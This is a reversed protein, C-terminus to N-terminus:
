RALMHEKRYEAYAAKRRKEEEVLAMLILVVWGSTSLPADKANFITKESVGLKDAVMGAVNSLEKTQERGYKLERIYADYTERYIEEARMMVAASVKHDKEHNRRGM